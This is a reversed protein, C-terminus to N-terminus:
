IENGCNASPGMSGIIGWPGPWRQAHWSTPVWAARGWPWTAPWPAALRLLPWPTLRQAGPTESLVQPFSEFMSSVHHVLNINDFKQVFFASMDQINM